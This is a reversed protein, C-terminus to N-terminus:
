CNAREMESAIILVSSEGCDTSSAPAKNPAAIVRHPTPECVIVRGGFPMCEEKAVIVGTGAESSKPRSEDKLDKSRLAGCSAGSTAAGESKATKIFSKPTELEKADLDAVNVPDSAELRTM